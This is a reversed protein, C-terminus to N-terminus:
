SAEIWTKFESILEISPKIIKVRKDNPSTVTFLAGTSIQDNIFNIITARSALNSMIKTLHEKTCINDNGLLTHNNLKLIEILIRYGYVNNRFLSLYKFKTRDGISEFSQIHKDIFNKYQDDSLNSMFNM